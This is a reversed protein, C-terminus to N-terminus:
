RPITRNLKGQLSKSIRYAFAMAVLTGTSLYVLKMVLTNSDTGIFLGHIFLALFTPFTFYHLFRWAKYKTVIMILSTLIIIVFLYFGIIGLSLYLPKFQSYFPIFLEMLSFKAFNDLALTVLHTAVFIVLTIGITRHIRWAIIPGWLNFIYGSTIGIGVILLLFLLIYSTIGSVRTLYWIWPTSQQQPATQPAIGPDNANLPNTKVLVEAGDLYTDNDTDPNNPDTKFINLEGQDTLGDLDTDKPQGDQYLSPTAAYSLSSTSLLFAISLLVGSIKSYKSLSKM